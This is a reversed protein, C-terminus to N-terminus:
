INLTFDKIIFKIILKDPYTKDIASQVFILQNDTEEYVIENYLSDFM